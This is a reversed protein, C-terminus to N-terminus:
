HRSLRSALKLVDSQNCAGMGGDVNVDIGKLWQSEPSAMFKVVEAVERPSGPRGVREINKAAAEGFATKFDKLIGTEVAAPSVSNMRISRQILAETEAMAWVIVAEKSLNYARTDDIGQESCFAKTDANNEQSMLLKVQDINQRWMAGAKSAVNVVSATELLHNIMLETFHRTGLFNIKLGLWGNGERPPIGAVNCLANYKKSVSNVAQEISSPEALNLPIYEDVEYDPAAVDFVTVWHGQGKLLQVLEKGIGSAGGTVAYNM